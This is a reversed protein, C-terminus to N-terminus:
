ADRLFGRPHMTGWHPDSALRVGAPRGRLPRALGFGDLHRRRRCGNRGHAALSTGHGRINGPGTSPSTTITAAPTRPLWFMRVPLTIAPRPEWFPYIYVLDTPDADFLSEANYRLITGNTLNTAQVARVFALPFLVIVSLIGIGTVLMSMLVEVLTLGAPASSASRPSVRNM